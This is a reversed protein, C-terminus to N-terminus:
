DMRRRMWSSWAVRWKSPLSKLVLSGDLFLKYRQRTDMVANEGGHQLHAQATTPGFALATVEPLVHDNQVGAIGRKMALGLRNLGGEIDAISDASYDIVVDNANAVSPLGNVTADAEAASFGLIDIEDATEIAGRFVYWVLSLADVSYYDSKATTPPVIFPELGQKSNALLESESGECRAISNEGRTALV